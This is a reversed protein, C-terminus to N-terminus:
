VLMHVYIRVLYKKCFSICSFYRYYKVRAFLVPVSLAAYTNPFATKMLVAHLKYGKGQRQEASVCPSTVQIVVCFFPIQLFSLRMRATQDPEVILAPVKVKIYHIAHARFLSVSSNVIRLHYWCIKDQRQGTDKSM